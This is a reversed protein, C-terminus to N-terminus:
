AITKKGIDTTMEYDGAALEHARKAAIREALELNEKNTVRDQVNSPKSLKLEKLFEYTREGNHYIDLLLSTSGDKNKRKRLIVSMQKQKSSAKRLYSFIQKKTVQTVISYCFHPFFPFLM